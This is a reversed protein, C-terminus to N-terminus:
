LELCHRLMDARRGGVKIWEYQEAAARSRAGSASVREPEKALCRLADAITEPDAPDVRIICETEEGIRGGGIPSAVIALGYAAAEYTVLPDGEEFSPLVLVDAQAYLASVDSVFGLTHVSSSGLADACLQRVAPEIEGAIVLRGDIGAIQWARLLQHLGKRICGYGVFLVTLGHTRSLPRPSYSGPLEVGYSTPLIRAAPVPLDALSREVSASPAFIAHTMALKEEEEDIREQTIRHAPAFGEASYAADLIERAYSMRTNIGEAIIPVGLAHVRRYTKLSAAPWIYAIDSSHIDQLFRRETRQSAADSYWRYPLYALIGPVSVRYDLDEILVRARNIFFPGSLNRRSMGQLLRTCTFSPGVGDCAMPLLTTLRTLKAEVTGLKLFAVNRDYLISTVLISAQAKEM